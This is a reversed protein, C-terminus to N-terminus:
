HINGKRINVIALICFSILSDNVYFYLLLLLSPNKIKNVDLNTEFNEDQHSTFFCPDGLSTGLVGDFM